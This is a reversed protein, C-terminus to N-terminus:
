AVRSRRKNSNSRSSSPGVNRSESTIDIGQTPIDHRPEAGLDTGQIPIDHRSEADVEVYADDVHYSYKTDLVEEGQQATRSWM